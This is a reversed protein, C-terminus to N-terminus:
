WKGRVLHICSGVQLIHASQYNHNFQNFVERECQRGRPYDGRGENHFDNTHTVGLPSLHVNGLHFIAGSKAGESWKITPCYPLPPKQVGVAYKRSVMITHRRRENTCSSYLQCFNSSSRELHAVVKGESLSHMQRKLINACQYNHNFVERM